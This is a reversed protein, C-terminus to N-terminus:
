NQLRDNEYVLVRDFRYTVHEGVSVQHGVFARLEGYPTELLLEAYHGRPVRRVVAAEAGGEGIRVDEPRVALLASDAVDATWKACPIPQSGAAHVLGDRVGGRLVNMAGIFRAVFSTEPDHYLKDPTDFQEIAGGQLVAVRDSISLAEDQDHTVFVSTIGARKQIIRIEERVRVRLQADLNSLPEDLLLVKPELVLARALAVRQQQGGSLQAPYQRDYGQLDVLELAEGVKRRIEQRSLKRLRLGFSINGFIDMNPWLAYQQFVMATPRREPPLKGVDEGDILIRGGDQSIFGGIMRLTTTKGSGSPGLLCVMEGSRVSLNLNEIVSRGGLRKTVRELLLDAM